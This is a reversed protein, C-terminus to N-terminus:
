PRFRPPERAILGTDVGVKFSLAAAFTWEAIGGDPGSQWRAGARVHRAVFRVSIGHAWGTPPVIPVELGTGVALAAGAGRGLPTV